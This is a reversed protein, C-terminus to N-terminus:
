QRSVTSGLFHMVLETVFTLALFRPAFSFRVRDLGKVTMCPRGIGEPTYTLTAFHCASDSLRVVCPAAKFEDYYLKADLDPHARFHDHQVDDPSLPAYERVVLFPEIILQRGEKRRHYFISEISGAVKTSGGPHTFIVFSNRRLSRSTSFSVGGWAIRKIFIAEM